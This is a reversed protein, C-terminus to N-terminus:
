LFRGIVNRIWESKIGTRAELAKMVIVDEPEFTRMILLLLAYISIYLVFMAILIYISTKIQRTLLYILSLSILSATFIKAYNIRVPQIHTIKFVEAFSLLSVTLVSIGTALAAGEIGYRPILLYNLIADLFAGVSTNLMILKTRGVTKIIQGTPFMVSIFFYSLTLICFAYAGRIYASGYLINLVDDSFLVMLMVLPLVIMFIWKTVAYNTDKIEEHMGKSYLETVVPFFISTFSSPVIKLLSATSLSARYIGVDKATLFYGLMLTDIWGMVLGLMGAFMLPWSFSLLEKRTFVAKERWFPFIKNLYFFAVFPAGIIAFTYAFAAGYIGYGLILLSVLILLRFANQFIDRALVVYKMEQFGGVASNFIYYLGYFPIGISFIRLIPALEQEKFILSISDAFLFIISSALISLPLVIQIASVIVGKIKGGEGRGKYFSVFRVIGEPMGVLVVTSAITTVASALSILGYDEPGLFRAIILVSIYALLMGVATGIFVIGAGKAVKLLSQESYKEDPM